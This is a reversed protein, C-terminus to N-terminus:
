KIAARADEYQKNALDNLQAAYDEIKSNGKYCDFILDGITINEKDGVKLGTTANWRSNAYGPVSKIAEVVANDINKYIEEVGEITNYEFYKELVEEDNILPISSYVIDNEESIRIRELIGEKSFTMWKAFDYAEEANETTKSLGMYDNVLVTKGNPLGIFKTDFTFEAISDAVWTGDYKFAVQGEKWVEFGNTGNFKQQDEPALSTYVYGNKGFEKAKNIGEKFEPADLNYKEGDWTFWGLDENKVAPYWDLITGEDELGIIGKNISTLSKITNEFEELSYGFELEKVNEQEFLDKNIFYGLAFQGAPMAYPNGEFKTSEVVPKSIKAWDEDNEVLGSLDMLWENSLGTPIDQLMIVDPLNGAAAATTLSDVYKANDINEAIKIKVNPNRKEYEAIMQRELNNEEETGLNWNAYTIEIKDGSGEGTASTKSCGTFMAGVVTSALVLSLLKKKM